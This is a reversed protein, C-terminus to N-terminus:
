IKSHARRTKPVSFCAALGFAVLLGFWFAFVAFPRVIGSGSFLVVRSVDNPVFTVLQLPLEAVRYLIALPIVFLTPPHLTPFPHEAGPYIFTGGGLDFWPLSSFVLAVVACVGRVTRTLRRGVMYAIALFSFFCGAVSGTRSLVGLGLGIAAFCFLLGRVSFRVGM